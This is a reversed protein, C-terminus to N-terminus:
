LKDYCLMVYYHLCEFELKVNISLHQSVTAAYITPSKSAVRAVKNIWQVLVQRVVTQESVRM